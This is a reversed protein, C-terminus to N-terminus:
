MDGRLEMLIKDRFVTDGTLDYICRCAIELLKKPDETHLGKQIAKRAESSDQIRRSEERLMNQYRVYDRRLDQETLEPRFRDAWSIQEQSPIFRNWM